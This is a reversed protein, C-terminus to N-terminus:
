RGFKAKTRLGHIHNRNRNHTFKFKNWVLRTVIADRHGNGLQAVMIRWTLRARQVHRANHRWHVQTQWPDLIICIPVLRLQRMETGHSAAHERGGHVSLTM